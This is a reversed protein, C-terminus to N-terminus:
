QLIYQINAYFVFLFACKEVCLCLLQMIILAAIYTAFTVFVDAATLKKFVKFFFILYM